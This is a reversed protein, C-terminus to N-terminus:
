KHVGWASWDVSERFRRRIEADDPILSEYEDILSGIQLIINQLCEMKRFSLLGDVYGIKRFKELLMRADPSVRVFAIRSNPKQLRIFGVEVAVKIRNMINSRTIVRVDFGNGSLSSLERRVARVVDSQLFTGRRARLTSVNEELCVKLIVWDTFDLNRMLGVLLAM